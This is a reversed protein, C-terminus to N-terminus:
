PVAGAASELGKVCTWGGHSVAAELSQGDASIELVQIRGLFIAYM